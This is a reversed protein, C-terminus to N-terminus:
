EFGQLVRGEKNLNVFDLALSIGIIVCPLSRPIEGGSELLVARCYPVAVNLRCEHCCVAQIRAVVKVKGFRFNEAM